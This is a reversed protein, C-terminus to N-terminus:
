GAVRSTSARRRALSSARRTARAVVLARRRARVKFTATLRDLPLLAAGTPNSSTADDRIFATVTGGEYTTIPNGGIDQMAVVPQPNFSTGGKATGPYTSLAIKYPAGVSIDFTASDIFAFPEKSSDVGIFRLAYDDGMENIFLRSFKAIGSSVKFLQNEGPATAGSSNLWMLEEFGTPSNSMTAYIWGDYTVDVVGDDLVSVEPQQGFVEGAIVDAVPTTVSLTYTAGAERVTAVSLAAALALARLAGIRGM